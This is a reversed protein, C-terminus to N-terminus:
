LIQRVYVINKCIFILFMVRKHHIEIRKLIKAFFKLYYPTKLM